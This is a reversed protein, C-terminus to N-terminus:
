AVRVVPLGHSMWRAAMNEISARSRPSLRDAVPLWVRLAPLPDLLLPVTDLVTSFSCDLVGPLREGTLLELELPLDSSALEMGFDTVLGAVQELSEHRHPRYRVPVDGVDELMCAVLNRYTGADILGTDVASSGVVLRDPSLKRERGFRARLFSYDNRRVQDAEHLALDYVTFFTVAPLEGREIGLLRQALRRPWPLPQGSLYPSSRMGQRHDVVAPTMSGDDVAVVETGPHLRALYRMFALHYAGLVVREVGNWSVFSSLWRRKAGGSMMGFPLTMVQSETFLLKLTAAFQRAAAPEAPELALVTVDDFGVFEAANLSQLPTGVVVVNRHPGLTPM